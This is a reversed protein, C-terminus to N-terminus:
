GKVALSIWGIIFALGGLPTIIGLKTIGTVAMIYLSGSFLLIGIVLSWWALRSQKEPSRSAIAFLLLTHILHYFVATQWWGPAKAGVEAFTKELGHAGFAGLIVGLAGLSAAITIFRRNNPSAQTQSVFSKRM